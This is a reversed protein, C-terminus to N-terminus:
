FHHENKKFVYQWAITTYILILIIQSLFHMTIYKWEFKTHVIFNEPSSSCIACLFKADFHFVMIRVVQM